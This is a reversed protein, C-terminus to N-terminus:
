FWEVLEFGYGANYQNAMKLSYISNIKGARVEHILKLCYSRRRDKIM